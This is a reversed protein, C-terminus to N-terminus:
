FEEHCVFEMFERALGRNLLSEICYTHQGGTLQVFRYKKDPPMEGAFRITLLSRYTAHQQHGQEKESGAFPEIKAWCERLPQWDPVRQGRGDLAVGMDRELRGFKDLEGAATM